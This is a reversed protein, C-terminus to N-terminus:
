FWNPRVKRLNGDPKNTVPGGGALYPLDVSAALRKSYSVEVPFHISGPVLATRDSIETSTLPTIQATFLEPLSNRKEPPVNM